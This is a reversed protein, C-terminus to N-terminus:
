AAGGILDRRNKVFDAIFLPLPVIFAAIVGISFCDFEIRFPEDLPIISLIGVALLAFNFIIFFIVFARKNKFKKPQKLGNIAIKISFVFGPIFFMVSLLLQQIFRVAPENLSLKDALFVFPLDYISEAIFPFATEGLWFIATEISLYILCGYILCNLFGFITTKKYM